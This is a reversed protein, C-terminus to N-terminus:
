KKIGTYILCIVSITLVLTIIKNNIIKKILSM